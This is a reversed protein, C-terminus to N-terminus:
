LFNSPDAAVIAAARPVALIVRNWVWLSYLNLLVVFPYGIFFFVQALEWIRNYWMAVILYQVLMDGCVLAWLYESLRVHFNQDLEFIDSYSVAYVDFLNSYRLMFVQWGWAANFILIMGVMGVCKPLMPSKIVSSRVRLMAMVKLPARSVAINRGILFLICCVGIAVVGLFDGIMDVSHGNFGINTPSPVHARGDRRRHLRAVVGDLTDLTNRIVFLVAALRLQRVNVNSFLSNGDSKADDGADVAITPSAFADTEDAPRKPTKATPDVGHPSAQPSESVGTGRGFGARIIYYAAAFGFFPHIVSVLNATIFWVDAMGCRVCLFYSLPYDLWLQVQNVMHHKANFRKKALEEKAHGITPPPTAGAAFRPQEQPTTVTAPPEPVPGGLTADGKKPRRSRPTAKQAVLDDDVQQLSRSAGVRQATDEPSSRAPAEMERSDSRMTSRPPDTSPVPDTVTVTQIFSILEISPNFYVVQFYGVVTVACILCVLVTRMADFASSLSVITCHHPTAVALFVGCRVPRTCCGWMENPVPSAPRM